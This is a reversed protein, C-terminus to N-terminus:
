LIIKILEVQAMKLWKRVSKIDIKKSPNKNRMITKWVHKLVTKNKEFLRQMREILSWGILGNLVYFDALLRPISTCEMGDFMCWM